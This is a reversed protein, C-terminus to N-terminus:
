FCHSDFSTTMSFGLRMLLSSNYWNWIFKLLLGIINLFNHINLTMAAGGGGGREGQGYLNFNHRKVHSIFM